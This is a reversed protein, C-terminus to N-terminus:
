LAAGQDSLNRARRHSALASAAANIARRGMMSALISRRGAANYLLKM